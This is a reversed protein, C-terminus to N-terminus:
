RTLPRLKQSLKLVKVWPQNTLEDIASKSLRATLVTNRVDGTVGLRRLLAEESTSPSHQTHIFVEWTPEEENLNETLASALPADLKQYDM